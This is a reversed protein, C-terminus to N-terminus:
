SQCRYFKIKGTKKFYWVVQQMEIRLLSSRGGKEEATSALASEQDEVFAQGSIRIYNGKNRDIFKLTVPFSTPAQGGFSEESWCWLQRNDDITHTEAIMVRSWPYASLLSYTSREIINKLDKYRNRLTEIM